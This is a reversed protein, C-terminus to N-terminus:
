REFCCNGARDCRCCNRAIVSGVRYATIQLAVILAACQAAHKYFPL